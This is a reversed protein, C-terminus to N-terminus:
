QRAAEAPRPPSDRIETHRIQGGTNAARAMMGSGVVSLLLVLTVFWGPVRSRGFVVLGALAVVGVIEVSVLAATATEEHRELHAESVGPMGEVLEEVAEGTFYVPLAILAVLVMGSLAFLKAQHNRWVIAAVLLLLAFPLGLVPVHNLALHLHAADM